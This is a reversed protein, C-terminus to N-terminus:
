SLAVPNQLRGIGEIEVAISSVRSMDLDWSTPYKDPLAPLAAMGFHVIDGPELTMYRSATAIVKQVSFRLNATSDQTVLEDGFWGRIELQNPDGIEDPTVVCPGMPAFTDCGKSRTHYTLLISRDDASNLRRWTIKPDPLKPVNLEISDQEKLAPSTIDNIITYGFVYQLADAESVNSARRNIIAALEPEPHTLGYDKRVKVPQGHGTLASPPKLFFAPEAFDRHAWRAVSANNIPVGIIKSPRRIPACWTVADLGYRPVSVENQAVRRAITVSREWAPSGLEVFELLTRVLMAEGLAAAAEVYSVVADGQVFGFHERGDVAFSCWRM